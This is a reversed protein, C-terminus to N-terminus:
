NFKLYYYIIRSIKDIYPNNSIYCYSYQYIYVVDFM